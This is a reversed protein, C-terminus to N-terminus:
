NLLVHNHNPDAQGNGNIQCVPRTTMNGITYSTSFTRNKDLPCYVNNLTGAGHGFYPQIQGSTPTATQGGNFELAWQNKANDIQRLNDVCASQQTNARARLYNPIAIAALLAIIAVVIMIEILTFGTKPSTKVKKM